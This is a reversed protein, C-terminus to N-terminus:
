AGSCLAHRQLEGLASHSCAHHSRAFTNRLQQLGGRSARIQMHKSCSAAGFRCRQCGYDYV